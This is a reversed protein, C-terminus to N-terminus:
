LTTLKVMEADSLYEDDIRLQKIKGTFKNSTGNAAAMSIRDLIGASYGGNNAKSFVQTGNYYGVVNTGIWRIALKGNTKINPVTFTADEGVNGGKLIVKIQTDSIPVITIRDSWTTTSSNLSVRGGISLFSGEFMFTGEQSNVVSSLDGTSGGVDESRTEGLATGYNPIYSTAYSQQELQAGFIINKETGDYTSTPAGDGKSLQVRFTASGTNQTTNIVLSLRYWGNGYDEIKAKDPSGSTGLTGNSVNYYAQITSATAGTSLLRIYDVNDKKVFVSGTYTQSSSCGFFQTVRPSINTGVPAKLYSANLSGTPSIEVDSEITPNGEKVWYSQTFYESYKTINTSTPELLLSPCGGGTHDIRPVNTNVETIERVSINDISGVFGGESGTSGYFRLVKNLGGFEFSTEYVGTTLSDSSFVDTFAGSAGVYAYVRIYGNTVATVEFTVKYQKGATFGSITQAMANSTESVANATGNSIQWGTGKSWGSDTAFDGNNVLESGLGLGTNIFGNKDVRSGASNRTFNSFDADASNPTVGYATGAKVGSPVYLYKLGM